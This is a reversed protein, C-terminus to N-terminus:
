YGSLTYYYVYLYNEDHGSLSCTSPKHRSTLWSNVPVQTSEGSRLCDVSLLFSQYEKSLKAFLVSLKIIGKKYWLNLLYRSTGVTCGIHYAPVQASGVKYSSPLLYRPVVQKINLPRCTNSCSRYYASPPWWYKTIFSM